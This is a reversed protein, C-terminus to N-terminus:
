IAAFRGLWVHAPKSLGTFENSDRRSQFLSVSQYGLDVAYVLSGNGNCHVNM